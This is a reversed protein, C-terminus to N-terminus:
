SALLSLLFRDDWGAKLRKAKIGAKTSSDRRLLNLALHRILALNEPAHDKRIRCDDEHFAVDLVWHLQNEIGWHTRVAHAFREVGGDLSTLYYRREFSTAQGDIHREAEVMGVRKLGAWRSAGDLHEVSGLLWHRRTEIRGHGADVTRCFEHHIDKFGVKLGWDFLQVVDQHLHPQNGKLSLVYDGGGEVIQEAIATQTGMADITVLCGNVDLVDLLQPIATIENSKEDVKVQGLVLRNQSAWASVMHIVGRKGGSEYSHRLSKGDIAIVEGERLQAVSSVWSMLSEGLGKPDLAAFVRAITDHSPIGNPLDLFSSLWEEKTKGYLESEVWSEAGCIVACLTLAIIDLLKHEILNAARPDELGQFHEWLSVRVEQSTKV